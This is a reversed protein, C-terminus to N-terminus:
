HLCSNDHICSCQRSINGHLLMKHSRIDFLLESKNINKTSTDEANSTRSIRVKMFSGYFAALSLDFNVFVIYRSVRFARSTNCRCVCVYVYTYVILSVCIYLIYSGPALRSITIATMWKILQSCRLKWTISQQPWFVLWTYGTVGIFGSRM